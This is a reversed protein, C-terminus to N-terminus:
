ALLGHQDMAKYLDQFRVGRVLRAMPGEATADVTINDIGGMDLHLSGTSMCAGNYCHGTSKVSFLLDFRRAFGVAAVADAASRAVVVIAPSAALRPNKLKTADKYATTGPLAVEGTVARRFVDIQDASPFCSNGPLCKHPQALSATCVFCIGALLLAQREVM